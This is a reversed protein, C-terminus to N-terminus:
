ADVTSLTGNKRRMMAPVSGEERMQELVRSLYFAETDTVHLTIQKKGEARLRAKYARQREANTM